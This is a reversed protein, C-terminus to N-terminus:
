LLHSRRRVWWEVCLLGVILALVYGNDWLPDEPGRPRSERAANQIEEPLNRAQDITLVRGPPSRASLAALAESRQRLVRWELDSALVFFHKDIERESDQRAAGPADTQPTSLGIRLRAPGARDAKFRGAYWGPRGAIATLALSRADADHLTLEAEIQPEFWPEFRDDLVRAEIQVFQGVEIPDRDLLITGRKTGSQRRTQALYRVMQVWFRDFCAEATARWRWTGDFGLFAARGAGFPQVALLIPGESASASKAGARLLVTALPKERLVPYHWWLGPLADWVARTPRADPAFQTLPHVWAQPTVEIPAARTHYAGQESLRVDADPDPTVPLLTLLEELRPDRLLRGTFHSGAQVLVGGGFEDVFRRLTIAWASDLEAPNPDLLLIADYALLEEPKRPLSELIRDGDRVAQADASQLWCSVEVSRDRELLTGVYHYDYSRRGAVLLVRLKEDLVRVIASRENDSIAAEGEAPRVVVRYVFAGAAAPQVRFLVEASQAGRDPAAVEVERSAIVEDAAGDTLSRCRLDIRLPGPALGTASATARIELPDELAASAPASFSDIRLNPPDHPQGAAVAYVPAGFQAAAAASEAEDLGANLAGDSLVICAAVPTDGLDNAAALLAAGLDTAGATPALQVALSDALQRGATSAEPVAADLRLDLRVPADGFTYVSLQNKAHLRRLWSADNDCLLQLVREARTAPGTAGDGRAAGPPAPEDAITMSASRDVFVLTAAPTRHITYTAWVPHLWILVLALLVICRIAALTFRVRPSAGTRGERRYLWFVAYLGAVVLALGLLRLWGQPAGSWELQRILEQSTQALPRM